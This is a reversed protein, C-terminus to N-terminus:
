RYGHRATPRRRGRGRPSRASASGVRGGHRRRSMVASRIPNGRSASRAVAFLTVTAALWLPGDLWGIELLARGEIWQLTGAALLGTYGAARTNADLKVRVAAVHPEVTQPQDDTACPVAAIM